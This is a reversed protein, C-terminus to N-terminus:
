TETSKIKGNSKEEKLVIKLDPINSPFITTIGGILIKMLAFTENRGWRCRMAESLKEIANEETAAFDVVLYARCPFRNPIQVEKVIVYKVMM